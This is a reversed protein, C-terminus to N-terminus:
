SNPLLFFAGLYYHTHDLNGTEVEAFHGKLRDQLAILEQLSHGQTMAKLWAEDVFSRNVKTKICEAFLWLMYEKFIHRTVNDKSASFQDAIQHLMPWNLSPWSSLENQLTTLVEFAEDTIYNIARGLSGSSMSLILDLEAPSIGPRIKHIIENIESEDVDDFKFTQCRSRITPLMAGLRHTILILVTREPPEELLKLLANQANRNMLDADDILAVRWGGDQSSKLKMFDSLKRLQGVDIVDRRQTSNPKFEPEIIKFDLHAGSEVQIFVPDENSINMTEAPLDEDGGFLGGATDGKESEKLLFRAFRYAFTAKGVGKPGSFIIGHPLRKDNYLSLLHQELDNSGIYLTSTNPPLIVSTNLANDNDQNSTEDSVDFDDFM